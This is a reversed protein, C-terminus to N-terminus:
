KKFIRTYLEIYWLGLIRPMYNYLEKVLSRCKIAKYRYAKWPSIRIKRYCKLYLAKKESSSTLSLIDNLVLERFSLVKRFIDKDYLIGKQTTWRKVEETILSISVIRKGIPSSTTISNNRIKYIYTEKKVIYMTQAICALQFSWLDDEHIIGEKFLLKERKIFKTNYLKNVAMVYWQFSLYNRRISANTSMEDETVHLSPFDNRDAGDVSYDGIVFDYKKEKLPASLLAICNSTIEDDGDLFYIYEGTAANIGTNRAASLGRNKEHHLLKFKISGKHKGIFKEIIECSNDPTCDNVIICEIDDEYTQSAVSLLCDKIYPEVNYVPIIISIKM